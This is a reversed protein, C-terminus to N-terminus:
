SAVVPINDSAFAVKALDPNEDCARDYARQFTLTPEKAMLEKAKVTLQADADDKAKGTSPAGDTSASGVARLMPKMGVRAQESMARLTQELMEGEEKSRGYASKLLTTAKEVDVGVFTRAKERMERTTNEDRIKALEANAKAAEDQAAKIQAQVADDKAKLAAQAADNAAKTAEDAIRKAEDLQAQVAKRAGEPLAALVDDISKPNATPAPMTTEQKTADFGEVAQKIAEGDDSEAASKISEVLTEGLAVLGPHAKYEDLLARTETIFEDTTKKLAPGMEGAPMWMIQHLSDLYASRVGEFHRQFKRAALIESTTAPKWEYKQGDPVPVEGPKLKFMTIKATPNDGDDVFAGEVIELDKVVHKPKRPM